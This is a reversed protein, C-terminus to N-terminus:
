RLGVRLVLDVPDSLTQKECHMTCYTEGGGGNGETRAVPDGSQMESGAITGVRPPFPSQGTDQNAQTREMDTTIIVIRCSGARAKATSDAVGTRM